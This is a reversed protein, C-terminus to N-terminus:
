DGGWGEGSAPSHTQRPHPTPKRRKAGVPAAADSSAGDPFKMLTSDLVSFHWGGHDFSYQDPGYIGRYFALSEPSPNGAFDHNGSVNHYPISDPLRGMLRKYEAIQAAHAPINTLDGCVVVFSPRPTMAAIADTVREVISTEAGFSMGDSGGAIMGLQTDAMQIFYFPKYGCGAFALPFLSLFTRRHM